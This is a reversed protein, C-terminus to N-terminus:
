SKSAFVAMNRNVAPFCALAPWGRLGDDEHLLQGPISLLRLGSALFALFFGVASSYAYRERIAARPHMIQWDGAQM